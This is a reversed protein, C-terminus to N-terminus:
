QESNSRDIAEKLMQEETLNFDVFRDYDFKHRLNLHGLFDISKQNPNGWPMASCVPCVVNKPGNPHMKNSHEILGKLTLNADKCYPCKFTHRNTSNAERMNHSILSKPKQTVSNNCVLQHTSYKKVSVINHCTDCSFSAKQLFEDMKKMHQIKNIDFTTRCIPCSKSASNNHSNVLCSRCFTHNCMNPKHPNEFVNMCISCAYKNEIENMQVMDNTIAQNTDPATCLLSTAM